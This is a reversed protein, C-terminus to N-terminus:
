QSNKTLGSVLKILYTNYFPYSQWDRPQFNCLATTTSLLKHEDSQELRINRYNQPLIRLHVM